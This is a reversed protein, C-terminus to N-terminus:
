GTIVDLDLIRYGVVNIVETPGIRTPGGAPVPEVHGHLMLRPRLARLLGHIADFGRHPPDDEDNVGRAPAHTLLVDIGRGHGHTGWRARAALRRARRGQQQQTYQNPGDGYRLCGGLGAIRLGAAEVVTGDANITGAPWPSSAPLGASLTLGARSTRFGSVDPDHNGPVFVVPVELADALWGLYEFPLDGCGVVLEPRLQRVAATWLREEVRDAVALLRAM